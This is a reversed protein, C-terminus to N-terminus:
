WHLAIGAGITSYKLDLAYSGIRQGDGLDVRGFLPKIMPITYYLEPVILSIHRGAWIECRLGGELALGMAVDTAVEERRNWDTLAGYGGVCQDWTFTYGQDVSTQGSIVYRGYSSTVYQVRLGGNLKIRASIRRDGSMPGSILGVGLLVSSLSHRISLETAHYAYNEYSGFWIDWPDSWISDIVMGTIAGTRLTSREVAVTAYWCKNWRYSAGMRWVQQDSSTSSFLPEPSMLERPGSGTFRMGEISWRTMPAWADQAQSGSMLGIAVTFAILPRIIM